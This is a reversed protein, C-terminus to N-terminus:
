HGAAVNQLTGASKPTTNPDDEKMKLSDSM